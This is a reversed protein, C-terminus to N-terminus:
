MNTLYIKPKEEIPSVNTNTSSTVNEEKPTNIMFSPTNTQQQSSTGGSRRMSEALTKGLTKSSKRAQTLADISEATPLLLPSPRDSSNITKELESTSTVEQDRKDEAVKTVTIKTTESPLKNMIPTTVVYASVDTKKIRKGASGDQTADFSRRKNLKREEIMKMRQINQHKEFMQAFLSAQLEPTITPIVVGKSDCEKRFKFIFEQEPSITTNPQPGGATIYYDDLFKSPDKKTELARMFLWEVAHNTATQNFKVNPLNPPTMKERSTPRSNSQQQQQQPINPPTRQNQPIPFPFVQAINKSIPAPLEIKPQEKNPPPTPESEPKTIEVDLSPMIEEELIPPGDEKEENATNDAMIDNESSNRKIESTPSQKRINNKMLILMNILMKTTSPSNRRFAVTRLTINDTLEAGDCVFAIRAISEDLQFKQMMLQRIVFMPTSAKCRYGRQFSNITPIKQIQYEPTKSTSAYPRIAVNPDYCVFFSIQEDIDISQALQDLLERKVIKTQLHPYQQFNELRKEIIVAPKFRTIIDQIIQNTRLEQLKFPKECVPCGRKNEQLSKLCQHCCSIDCCPLIKPLYFTNDCLRCTLSIEQVKEKESPSAPM